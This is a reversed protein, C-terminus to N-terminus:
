RHVGESRAFSQARDKFVLSSFLIARVGDASALFHLSTLQSTSLRNRAFLNCWVICFCAPVRGRPSPKKGLVVKLSVAM